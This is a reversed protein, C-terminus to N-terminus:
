LSRLYELLLRLSFGTGGKTLVGADKESRGPGAIDLHVWPKAEVFHQLFLGASITGAEGAAGINKLDAIESELHSEYAEHLPLRWIAEGSRSAAAEFAQAVGDDNAMYAAIGSGLAVVAAGTLTAVDVILDPHEEVALTLGDALILRGEADTNLVEITTGSRPTLVDGPRMANGSPMNEAMPALATVKVGVGLADLASMLSLVVAAGTMDTKMTTMGGPTKLSLGGSDFTIGKGVLIVHRDAGGSPQYVAKVLRPPRTSGEAVGLVGGLREAEIRAEDWIEVSVGRAAALGSAAREALEVPGLEAPPTNVFDRAMAVAHAIAQGTSSGDPAGLLELRKIGKDDRKSSKSFRYTGLLAGITAAEAASPDDGVVLVGREGKLNRAAAAGAQRWQEATPTEGMGVLLVTPQNPGSSLVMTSGAKGTFENRALHAPDLEPSAGHSAVVEGLEPLVSVGEDTGRVPIALLDVHSLDSEGALGLVELTLPM